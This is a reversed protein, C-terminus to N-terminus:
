FPLRVIASVGHATYGSGLQADYGIQFSAGSKLSMSLGAGCLLFNRHPALTQVIFPSSGQALRSTVNRSGRLFEHGYSVRIGPMLFTKETEWTYYLRGGISGQLSETKQRDVSLNLAGAGSETYGDVALHTYRLSASPVITWSNRKFEYGAGGYLLFHKGSPDSTASRSLGPLAIRRTNRHDSWGYGIQGDAYFGRSYWTGYAGLTYGDLNAKSGLNDVDARSNTYGFLVGATFKETFDFDVGTTVGSSTFSYGPREPTDRQDGYVTGGKVFVGWREDQHAQPPMGMLSPSASALLIPEGVLRREDRGAGRMGRRIESLRQTVNESQFAATSVGARFTAESGKPALQDYAAAVGAHTPIADIVDLVNDLDGTASPAVSNLMTAVALRNPTLYGRMADSMYNREAVLYVQNPTDYFPKFALTPTLETLLTTFQGTVGNGATLIAGYTGAKVPGGVWSTQLTGDLNASGTVALLDNSTPSEVEIFLTGAPGQTYDGVLALSGVSNGPSVTGGTNTLGRSAHITGRGGLTGAHLYFHNGFAGPAETLQGDVVLSGGNVVVNRRVQFVRQAPIHYVTGPKGITLSVANIDAGQTMLGPQLMEMEGMLFKVAYGYWIGVDGEATDALNLTWQGVGSEGWFANSLFTWMDEEFKAENGAHPYLICSVMGSPSTIWSALDGMYSHTLGLTVEVGELPQNAEAEGLHFTETLGQPDNDPIPKGVEFENEITFSTQQTVYAVDRVMEVFAGADINGFGYNPNFWKEAQNERWGGFSSESDDDRDVVTSTETLAHKAMRVDMESNAEKGLAMIGSVLPTASSTGGFTSTYGTDPFLDDPDGDPNLDLSYRNYGLNDGTRDTTTINFGIYELGEAKPILSNSPATVFVSSGYNSYGSFSGDSGLAAVNIVSANNSLMIKNSDESPAGRENGAAFLHIVGNEATLTLAANSKEDEFVFPEDPGYSHNKVHIAAVGEIAGTAPNVGSQWYYADLFDQIGPEPDEPTEEGLNIRLAAIRAYPAAGTGGMENGGRAAAVGAVATGHNDGGGRPAQPAAALDPNASFNKSLDASYNPAIDYHAGDVGGDVIGIVVGEGTYGLEWAGLLGADIEANELTFWMQQSTSFFDMSSPAQNALHWQGPFAPREIANYFFYPDNPYFPEGQGFARYPLLSLFLVLM